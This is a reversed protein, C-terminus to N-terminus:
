HWRRWVASGIGAGALTALANVTDNTVWAWGRVLNARQGCRPHVAEETLVACAPCRYLAQVTAGVLSDCLAGLVGAVLATPLGSRGGGLVSWSLGVCLAGGISAALGQATVGGSTGAEVPELTTILRPASRALMGLETAWTDAGATALAGLFGGSGNARGGLGISLTALGGNALVQALDRRAGKAQALPSYQKRQEGLSSLASSSSFFALLAAAAPLGGRAFVVCGLVAAGLAGDLTLARRTYAFVAVGVGLLASALWRRGLRSDAWRVGLTVRLRVPRRTNLRGPLGM